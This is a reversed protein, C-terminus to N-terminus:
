GVISSSYLCFHGIKWKESESVELHPFTRSIFGVTRLNGPTNNHSSNFPFHPSCTKHKNKPLPFPYYRIKSNTNLYCLVFLIYKVKNYRLM